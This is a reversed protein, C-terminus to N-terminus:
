AAEPLTVHYIVQLRLRTEIHDGAIVIGGTAAIPQALGSLKIRTLVAGLLAVFDRGAERLSAKRDGPVVEHLVLLTPRQEVLVVDGPRARSPPFSIEGDEIRFHKHKLPHPQTNPGLAEEDMVQLSTGETIAEIIREYVLAPDLELPAGVM